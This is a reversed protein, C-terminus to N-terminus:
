KPLTLKESSILWGKRWFLWVQVLTVVVMIMIAFPYGFYWRLEPMNWPSVGVDFNMGYVGAIFNLPIFVTSILTLIRIGENLRQSMLSISLEMLSACLERYNELLEIIQVSHDYCDRLHIKTEEVFLTSNERMMASVLDRLPWLIRRMTLLDHKLAHLKTLISSQSSTFLQEELDDLESAFQELVPFYQDLICDIIAYCLYDCGAFRIRGLKNRIRLKVNELPVFDREQFSLVFNAGLFLSVQQGAKSDDFSEVTRAVVFFIDGYQEFKPRQQVNVVDELTLRHFDFLQGLQHIMSADGLGTVQIWNSPWQSVITPLAQLDSVDQEICQTPSYSIIKIKPKLADPDILLTGPSKGIGPNMRKTKSLQKRRGQRKM